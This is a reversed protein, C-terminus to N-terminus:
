RLCFEVDHEIAVQANFASLIDKQKRTLAKTFRGKTSSTIITINALQNFVKKLSVSNDTLFQKLKNLMFTRIVLAVFTVFTKGDTTIENHTRIRNGHMDIKMQDFLKEAADKARYHYLIDDHTATWDTSFILFFGKRSRMKDINDNDLEFDFGRGTEHKTIRFYQSYRKLKDKPYWKLGDLEASLLRIRESMENCLQAHSMPDYFLMLRGNVGYYEITKEVCYIEHDALKNVYKDIGQAHTKLMEESVNLGAPIGITFSKAHKNLNQICDEKIFGGDVVFKVDTVGVLEANELV